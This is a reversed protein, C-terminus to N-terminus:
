KVPKQGRRTYFREVDARSVYVKANRSAGPPRWDRLEGARVKRRITSRSVGYETAAIEVTILDDPVPEGAPCAPPLATPDLRVLLPYMEDLMRGLKARKTDPFGHVLDFDRMGLIALWEDRVQEGLGARLVARKCDEVHAFLADRGKAVLARFYKKDEPVLEEYEPLGWTRLHLYTAWLALVAGYKHEVPVLRAPRPTTAPKRANRKTM